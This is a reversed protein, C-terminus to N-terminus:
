ILSIFCKKFEQWIMDESDEKDLDLNDFTPSWHTWNKKDIKKFNFKCMNNNQINYIKFTKILGYSILKDFKENLTRLNESDIKKFTDVCLLFGNYNITDINCVSEFNRIYDYGDKQLYVRVFDIYQHLLDYKYYNEIIKINNKQCIEKSCTGDEIQKKMKDVLSVPEPEEANGINSFNIEIEM